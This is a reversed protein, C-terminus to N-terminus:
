GIKKRQRYKVILERVRPVLKAPVLMVSPSSRGFAAEDEAEAAAESQAEYHRLVRQTRASSWGKPYRNRVKKM